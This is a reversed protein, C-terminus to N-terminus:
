LLCTHNESRSGAKEAENNTDRDQTATAIFRHPRIRDRKGAFCATVVALHDNDIM